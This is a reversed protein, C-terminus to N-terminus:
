SVCGARWAEDKPSLSAYHERRALGAQSPRRSRGSAMVPLLKRILSMSGNVTYMEMSRTPRAEQKAHLNPLSARRMASKQQAGQDRELWTFNAIIMAAPRMSKELALCQEITHKCEASVQWEPGTCNVETALVAQTFKEVTEFDALYRPLRGSVMLHLCLGLGWVDHKESPSEGALVEPAAYEMTGTMTLSGGDMLSRSVNFDTLHLSQLDDSVLINQPKIDRHLIRSSHLYVVAALLKRFLRRSDEELLRGGQSAKVAANLTYGPHYSLVLVAANPLQMFDVAQVLNPHQLTRLLDFEARRNRVLEEDPAEMWKMAVERNDKKRKARFVRASSGQGIMEFIDYEKMADLSKDDELPATRRSAVKLAPLSKKGRRSWLSGKAL